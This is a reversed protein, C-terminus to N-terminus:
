SKRIINLLILRKEGITAIVCCGYLTTFDPM